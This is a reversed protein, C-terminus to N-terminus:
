KMHLIKVEDKPIIETSRDQDNFLFFYNDTKGLYYLKSNSSLTTSDKLMMVVQVNKNNKVQSIEVSTFAFVIWTLIIAMILPSLKSVNENIRFGENDISISKKSFFYLSLIILLFLAVNLIILLLPKKQAFFLPLLTLILVLSLIYYITYNRRIEININSELKHLRKAKRIPHRFLFATLIFVITIITLLFINDFFSIVIESLTLFPLINIGFFKYFIFQRLVGLFILFPGIIKISLDFSLEDRDM